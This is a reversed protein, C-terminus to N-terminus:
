TKWHREDGEDLREVAGQLRRHLWLTKKRARLIHRGGVPNQVDHILHHQGFDPAKRLSIEHLEGVLHSTKVTSLNM